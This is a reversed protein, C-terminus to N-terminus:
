KKEKEIEALRANIEDREAKLSEAEDKAGFLGIGLRRWFGRGRGGRAGRGFPVCGGRGWGTGQGEGRPGTRDGGPM